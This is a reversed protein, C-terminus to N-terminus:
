ISRAFTDFEDSICDTGVQLKLLSIYTDSITECVDTPSKPHVPLISGYKTKCNAIFCSWALLNEDSFDNASTVQVRVAM